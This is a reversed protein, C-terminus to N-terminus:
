YISRVCRFGIDFTLDNTDDFNWTRLHYPSSWWGGGKRIHMNRESISSTWEYVNGSLDYVGYPSPSDTTQYGNIIEGNYIGVPTTGNDWPDGSDEFNAMSGDIFDGWPFEFGTNARAAKEWERENPLRLGYFEAFKYGGIWSVEVVPHDGYGEQVIYTTGNWAIFGCDYENQWDIEHLEFLLYDGPAYMEDGPYFGYVFGQDNNWIFDAQLGSILFAVFQAYTVEYKMIEYDYDIVQIEDQEGLTFEGAPIEIMEFPLESMLTGTCTIKIETDENYFDMYEAGINWVISKQIGFHIGAGVDGTVHNTEVFNEGGDFSVEVTVDFVDFLADETLDYTIDVLQSGDTRQAAVINTVEAQQTFLASSLFISLVAFKIFRSKM